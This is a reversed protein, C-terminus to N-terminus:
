EIEDVGSLGLRSRIIWTGLYLFPTDLAAIIAKFLWGAVLLTGFREWEIAGVTCLLGVVVATDVLQSTMTSFNNRIWLHKGNTVRKWFHFLRIDIFQAALYAAMSAGVSVTTLGFVKRFEDDGVPSWSTAPVLDALTVVGLVFISSILGAMVMRNARKLGYIESILDTVLFTIPYPLIGVSIEFTYLGFAEWIFFKQFILNCSVLSAIFIGALILYIYEAEKQKDVSLQM